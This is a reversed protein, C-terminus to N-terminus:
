MKLSLLLRGPSHLVEPTRPAVDPLGNSSTLTKHRCSSPLRAVRASCNSKAAPCHTSGMRTGPGPFPKNEERHLERPVRWVYELWVEETTNDELAWNFTLPSPVRKTVLRPFSPNVRSDQFPQKSRATLLHTLTSGAEAPAPDGVVLLKHCFGLQQRTTLAHWQRSLSGPNHVHTHQSWARILGDLGTNQAGRPWTLIRGAVLLVVSTVVRVTLFLQSKESTHPLVHSWSQWSDWRAFHPKVQM